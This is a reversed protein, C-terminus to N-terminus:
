EIIVPLPQDNLVVKGTVRVGKKLTNTIYSKKVASTKSRIRTEYSITEFSSGPTRRLPAKVAIAIEDIEVDRVAAEYSCQTIIGLGVAGLFYALPGPASGDGGRDKSEDSYWVSGRFSAEVRVNRVLRTGINLELVQDTGKPQTRAQEQLSKASKIFDQTQLGV